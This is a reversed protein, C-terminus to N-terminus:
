VQAEWYAYAGLITPLGSLNFSFGNATVTSYDVTAFFIESNSDKGAVNVAINGPPGTLAPSFVVAYNQTGVALAVKGKQLVNTAPPWSGGGAAGGPNFSNGPSNSFITNM